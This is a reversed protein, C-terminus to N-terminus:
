FYTRGKRCAEAMAKRARGSASVMGRERKKGSIEFSPLYWAEASM